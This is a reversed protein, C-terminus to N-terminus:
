TLGAAAFALGSVAIVTALMTGIMAFLMRKEAEAIRTAMRHELADMRTTLLAAHHELDGKTTVDAWGVPPLLAMMTDAEETGLKDTLTNHLQNRQHETISMM